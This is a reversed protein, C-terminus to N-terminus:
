EAPKPPPGMQIREGIYAGILTFLVGIAAMIIYMFLPMTRVTQSRALYFVTPIAVTVKPWLAPEDRAWPTERAAPLDAAAAVTADDLTKGELFQNAAEVQHPVPSISGLAM